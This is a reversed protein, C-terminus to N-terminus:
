FGKSKKHEYDEVTMIVGPDSLQQTGDEWKVLVGQPGIALVRGVGKDPEQTHVVMNRGEEPGFRRRGAEELIGSYEEKIIEKLRAKTIKM